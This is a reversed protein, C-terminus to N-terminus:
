LPMKPTQSYISIHLPFESGFPNFILNRLCTQIHIHLIHVNYHIGFSNPNILDSVGTVTAMFVTMKQSKFM